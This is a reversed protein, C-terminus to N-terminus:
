KGGPSQAASFLFSYDSAYKSTSMCTPSAAIAAQVHCDLCMYKQQFYTELTTNAVIHTGKPPQPDGTPMNGQGACAGPPVTTNNSPWLVNVLQYNLFVSNPNAQQILGWVYKNISSANGDLVQSRMVQVPANYPDVNPTPPTNPKCQYHDKSPVCNKNYYTYWDKLQTDTASPANNVHEFTAWVFQQGKPTKQIIHLGVLGMTATVPKTPAWPYFVIAQSTKFSPWLTPDDLQIWAAKIEISWDPLILGSPSQAVQRQIDANYTQTTTIYTFETQNLRVEYMTINGNQATLWSDTFAETFSILNFPKGAGFKTSQTFIKYGLRSTPRINNATVARALHPLVIQPACWLTPPAANPQFVESDVKYSEWVVPNTDNPTGFQAAPITPDPKGCDTPSAAWNLAIFEQWAFCDAAVQSANNGAFDSPVTPILSNIPNPTSSCPTSPASVAANSTTAAGATVAESVPSPAAAPASCQSLISSTLVGLLVVFGTAGITRPM